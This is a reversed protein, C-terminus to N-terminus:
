AASSICIIQGRDGRLYIQLTRFRERIRSAETMVVHHRVEFQASGPDFRRCM